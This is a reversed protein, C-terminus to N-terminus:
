PCPSSGMAQMEGRDIGDAVTGRRTDGDVDLGGVEDLEMPGIGREKRGVAIASQVLGLSKKSSSSSARTVSSIRSAFSSRM